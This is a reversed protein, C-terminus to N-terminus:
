HKLLIPPCEQLSDWLTRPLGLGAVLRKYANDPWMATSCLNNRVLLM